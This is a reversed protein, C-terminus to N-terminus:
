SYPVFIFFNGWFYISHMVEPTNLRKVNTGNPHIHSQPWRVKKGHKHEVCLEISNGGPIRHSFGVRDM